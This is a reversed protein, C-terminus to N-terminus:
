IDETLAGMWEEVVFSHGKDNSYEMKGRLTIERGAEIHSQCKEWVRPFFVLSTVGKNNELTALALADGTKTTITKVNNVIGMIYGADKLITEISIEDIKCARSIKEKSWGQRFLTKISEETKKDM